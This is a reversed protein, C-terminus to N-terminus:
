PLMLMLTGALTLAACLANRRTIREHFFLGFIVSLVVCGGTIIPYQVSPEIHVISVLLLVSAVGNVVGYGAASLLARRAGAASGARPVSGGRLRIWALAAGCALANMLMTLITFDNTGVAAVGAAPNQHLDAVVGSMGNFFFIAAYCLYAPWGGKKSEGGGQANIFLAAAILAFCVIKQWTVQDGAFVFGYVFPIAMGGLMMYLSYKALDSISLAVIGFYGCGVCILMNCAAMFLSFPTAALRFGNCAFMLAGFILSSLLLFLCSVAFSQGMERQYVKNFVFQISFLVAALILMAYYM